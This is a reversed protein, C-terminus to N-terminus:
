VHQNDYEGCTSRLKDGLQKLASDKRLENVFVEFKLPDVSIQMEVTDLLKVIQQVPKELSCITEQMYRSLLDASFLRRSLEVPNRINKLM